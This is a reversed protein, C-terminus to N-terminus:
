ILFTKWIQRLQSNANGNGRIQYWWWRSWISKNSASITITITIFDLQEAIPRKGSVCFQRNHMRRSHRSCKGRWRSWLFGSTLSKSMCWPQQETELHQHFLKGTRGKQPWVGRHACVSYSDVVDQHPLDMGAVWPPYFSELRPEATKDGMLRLYRDVVILTNRIRKRTWWYVGIITYKWLPFVQSHTWQCHFM